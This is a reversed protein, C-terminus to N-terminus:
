RLDGEERPPMVVTSTITRLGRLKSLRAHYDSPSIGLFRSFPTLLLPHVGALWLWELDGVSLAHRESDTLDYGEFTSGKGPALQQQRSVDNKLDFLYREIEAVSM